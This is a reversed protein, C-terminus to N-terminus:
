NAENTQEQKKSREVFEEKLLRFINYLQEFTKVEFKLEVVDDVAVNIKM